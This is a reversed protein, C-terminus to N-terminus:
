EATKDHRDTFDKVRKEADERAWGYREQLKGVFQEYNGHMKDLDDDTLKGWEERVKGKMNTWDGKVVDWNM